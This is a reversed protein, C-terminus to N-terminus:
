MKKRKKSSGKYDNDEILIKRSNTMNYMAALETIQHKQESSLHCCHPNKDLLSKIELLKDKTYYLLMKRELCNTSANSRHNEQTNQTIACNKALLDLVFLLIKMDVDNVHIFKIYQSLFEEYLKMAEISYSKTRDSLGKYTYIQALRSLALFRGGMDKNEDNHLWTLYINEALDYQGNEILRKGERLNERHYKDEQM